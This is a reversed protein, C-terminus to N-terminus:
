SLTKEMQIKGDLDKWLFKGDELLLYGHWSGEKPMSVSGPNVCLIGKREACRPVHTHGQLLIDGTQLPPLNEECFHHGHTALVMRQGVSLIAYEALIPFELVLQDVESDCNGRVCLIRGKRGNLMAAVAPPDYDQPLGNRPGHYLLDGLLLMRDAGEADYAALLQRCRDAAGHIDSAILWKM